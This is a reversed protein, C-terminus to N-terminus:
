ESDQAAGLEVLLADLEAEGMQEVDDNAAESDVADQEAEEMLRQCLDAAIASIPQGQLLQMPEIKQDVLGELASGLEVAVLSDVGIDDLNQDPQIKAPDLRLLAAVEGILHETMRELRASEEMEALERRLRGGKGETLDEGHELVVNEFRPSWGKGRSQQIWQSWDMAAVTKNPAGLGLLRELFAVAEANTFGQMGRRALHSGVDDNRAVVGSESLVGWGVALAPLGQRRRWEALADLYANAAVYSGQGPNGVVASVSSFVVFHDLPLEQSHTHLFWAGRAKPAMVRHFAADDLESLTSDELVMAGHFIGRLPLEADGLAALLGAVQQEDTMDVARVDVQAGRSQLEEVLAPADPSHAGRRSVLVVRGAGKDALWRAVAAAFGSAGGTVLYAGDNRIGASPKHGAHLPIDGKELDVVVKGVHRAKAMHQFADITQEPAFAQTPLPPVAGSNMLAWSEDLLRRFMKPREAMMLDIDVSALTVQKAFSGMPLGRNSLIDRKGIEIFRGYPAVLKLSAELADGSLSNLVVDVGRGATVRRVDDAFALSRSDFVHEVGLERLYQRKEENGATAFVEAGRWRAVAIAALGVGGAAGHILVREDAHLRGLEYLGYYATIYNTLVPAEAFSWGNPVPVMFRTPVTNYTRFTGVGDPTVVRDGVEHQTVNEGVRTVVGACELGLHAGFFTQSVYDEELLGMVKMIDKFNLPAAKVAIEVEDPGPADRDVEVWRLNEFRGPGTLELRAPRELSTPLVPSTDDDPSRVFRHVYRSRARLAVEDERDAAQLEQALAEVADPDAHAPLDVRVTTGAAREQAAVRALGWTSAGSPKAASATSPGSPAFMGATLVVLRADSQVRELAQVLHALALASAEGVPDAPDAPADLAWGFVVQDVAGQQQLLRRFAETSGDLPVHSGVAPVDGPDQHMAYALTAGRKSLVDGLAEVIGGRDAILLVRKGALQSQEDELPKPQWVHHYAVDTFSRGGNQRREPLAACEVGFAEVLVEGDGNCLVIDGFLRAETAEHVRGWVMAREGVPQHCRLEQINVPVLVPGESQRALCAILSQLGADLLAPHVYYGAASHEQALAVEALVEHESAHASRVTRFAPGYELGRANLTGYLAEPEIEQTLRARVSSLDVATVPHLGATRVQATAHLRFSEADPGPSHVTMRRTAPDLTVHAEAGDGELMKHFSIGDLWLPHGTHAAAALAMEVYAAGPVLVAGAVQHDPIYPAYSGGVVSQWAPEPQRQRQQLLPHEMSGFKDLSSAQTQARLTERQWAYTPLKLKPGQGLWTRWGSYAGNVYLQGLAEELSEVESQGRRLSATALLASTDTLTQRISFGLVPNPGVELFTDFGDRGLQAVADRLRVPELVNRWWYDPRQMQADIRAGLVTSYLPIQPPHADLDAIAELFAARMSEMQKSHYAVDVKLMRHFVGRSKLLEGFTELADRPGSLTLAEPSNYAAIELGPYDSLLPAIVNTPAGVAMMSSTGVMPQQLRCRHWTLRFAERLELVGAAWAAGVEGVSHGVIAHPELGRARWARTLAVQLALNSPQAYLPESIPSGVEGKPAEGNWGFTALLDYGGAACFAEACEELAAAFTADHQALECGMGWSQAGMGTFVLALQRAAAPVRGSAAREVREGRSATRLAELLEAREDGRLAMRYNHASRYASLARALEGPRCEPHAEWWDALREAQSALAQESRATIPLVVRTPPTSEARYASTAPAEQLLVHANSGGYGFSNVGAFLPGDEELRVNRTPVQLPLSSFDIAPNPSNFHLNPPVQRHRLVLAAKIVGALGSAAELHGVNTKVSGMWCPRTADRKDGLVSALAHAETPDGAQTGTGHAEIYALQAASVGAREYVSRLLAQQSEGNPVTISQTRGDQNLGTASVLAYISDGDALAEHLPRLIVGAAGEGRVYGNAAADFAKCRADPSLFGGKCMTILYEPRSMVNAGGAVALSCQGSWISECALHFATLSASCATDVTFSPGRFDFIHSVRNSLMVMTGATATQSVVADRSLVGLQELMNDLVFGGVFVGTNSGRLADPVLGADELAEWTVELMLRQQPDMVAAERPSVGFFSPDFDYLPEKLFGAQKVYYKGPADPNPDYFRRHDWRDAPVDAIADHGGELLRWFAEVSSAGGPFRCGIGVIALPEHARGGGANSHVASDFQRDREHQEDM